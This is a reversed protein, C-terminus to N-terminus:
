GGGGEGWVGGGKRGYEMVAGSFDNRGWFFFFFLRALFRPGVTGFFGVPVRSTRTRPLVMKGAVINPRKLIRKVIRRWIWKSKVM